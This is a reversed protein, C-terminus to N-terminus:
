GLSLCLRDCFFRNFAHQVPTMIFSVARLVEPDELCQQFSDYRSITHALKVTEAPSPSEPQQVWGLIYLILHIPNLNKGHYQM